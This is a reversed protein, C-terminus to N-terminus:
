GEGPRDIIGSMSQPYENGSYPGPQKEDWSGVGLIINPDSSAISYEEGNSSRVSQHSAKRRKISSGRKKSRLYFESALYAADPPTPEAAYSLRRQRQEDLFRWLQATLDSSDASPLHYQPGNLSPDAMILLQGNTGPTGPVEHGPGEPNPVSVSSSAYSQPPLHDTTRPSQYSYVRRDVTEGHQPRNHIQTFSGADICTCMDQNLAPPGLGPVTKLCRACEWEENTDYQNFNELCHDYESAM